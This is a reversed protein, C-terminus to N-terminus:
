ATSCKPVARELIVYSAYDLFWDQYMGPLHTTSQLEGIEAIQPEPLEEGNENEPEPILEENGFESENDEM